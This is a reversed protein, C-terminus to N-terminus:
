REPFLWRRMGTREQAFPRAGELDRAAARERATQIRRVWMMQNVLPTSGVADVSTFLRQIERPLGICGKAFESTIEERLRSRRGNEENRHLAANRHDWLDWAVQWFKQIIESIWRRLSIKSQLSQLYQLHVGKWQLSWFGFLFAEWGIQDQGM